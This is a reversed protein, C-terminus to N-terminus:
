HGHVVHVAFPLIRRGHNHLITIGAALLVVIAAVIVLTQPKM